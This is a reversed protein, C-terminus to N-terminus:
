HILKKKLLLGISRQVLAVANTIRQTLLSYSFFLNLVQKTNDLYHHDSPSQQMIEFQPFRFPKDDGVTADAEMKDDMTSGVGGELEGVGGNIGAEATTTEKVDGADGVVHTSMNNISKTATLETRSAEGEKFGIKLYMRGQAFVKGALQFVAKIIVQIRNM